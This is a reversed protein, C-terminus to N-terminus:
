DRAKALWRDLDALTSFDLLEEALRDFADVPLASVSGALDTPVAGCRRALQRLVRATGERRGEM